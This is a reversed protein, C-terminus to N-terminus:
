GVLHRRGTTDKAHGRCPLPSLGGRRMELRQQVAEERQGLFAAQRHIQMQIFDAIGCGAGQVGDGAGGDRSAKLREDLDAMDTGQRHLGLRLRVLRDRQTGFRAQPHDVQRHAVHIQLPSLGAM